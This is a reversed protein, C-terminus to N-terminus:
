TLVRTKQIRTNGELQGDLWEWIGHEDRYPAIRMCQYLLRWHCKEVAGGWIYSYPLYMSFAAPVGIILAKGAGIEEALNVKNGPSGEALVNLDPVKDGIRVFSARSTSFTRSSIAATRVGSATINRATFM